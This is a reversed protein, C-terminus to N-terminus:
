RDQLSLCTIQHTGFFDPTAPFRTFRRANILSDLEQEFLETLLCLWLQYCMKGAKPPPCRDHAAARRAYTPAGRDLKGAATNVDSEIPEIHGAAEDLFLGHLNLLFKLLQFHTRQGLADVHPIRCGNLREDFTDFLGQTANMKEYIGRSYM